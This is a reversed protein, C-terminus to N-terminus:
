RSKKTMVRKKKRKEKRRQNIHNNDFQPNERIYSMWEIVRERNLGFVRSFQSIFEKAEAEVNTVTDSNDKMVPSYEGAFFKGIYSNCNFLTNAYVIANKMNKISHFCYISKAFLIEPLNCNEKKVNELMVSLEDFRNQTILLMCVRNETKMNDYRDLELLRKGTEVAEDLMNLIEQLLMTYYLNRIYPKTEILIFFDGMNEKFFSEPHRNKFLVEGMKFYELAKEPDDTQAFGLLTYADTCFKDLKLANLAVSRKKDNDEEPYGDYVMLQAREIDNKPEYDDLSIEGLKEMQVSLEEINDFKVKGILKERIYLYKEGIILEILRLDEPM